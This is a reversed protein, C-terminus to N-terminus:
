KLKLKWVYGTLGDAAAVVIESIANRYVAAGEGYITDGCGSISADLLYAQNFLKNPVVFTGNIQCGDITTGTLAGNNQITASAVLMDDWDYVDYNGAM